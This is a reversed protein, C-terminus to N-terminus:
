RVGRIGPAGDGRAAHGGLHPLGQRHLREGTIEHLYANVDGSDITQRQGDDDVYQFLEAGPLEKCRRVINAMRRDSIDISHDVGSKGRFHFRVTAGEVDVHQNRMTTLGYSENTKAYEENGVRILTTELLRVVTALVKERPLGSRGLDKEVQARIRPLAEAFAIMRAYKTEDRTERWRPHYRYQKRGKADRGTAQLHGNPITCIWVDTWAPPIVLSRIRRLTEADHVLTGDPRRYSFGTGARKRRIGPTTDSVYRLRALRASAVPDTVPAPLPTPRSRKSQAHTTAYIMGRRQALAIGRAAFSGQASKRAIIPESAAHRYTSSPAAHPVNRPPPLRRRPAPENHERRHREEEPEREIRLLVDHRVIELTDKMELPRLEAVDGGDALNGAEQEDEERREEVADRELAHRRAREDEECDAIRKEPQRIAEPRDRRPDDDGAHAVMHDQLRLIREAQIQCRLPLTPRDEALHGRDGLRAREGREHNDEKDEMEVGGNEAWGEHHEAANCGESGHRNDAERMQVVALLPRLRRPSVPDHQLTLVTVVVVETQEIAPPLLDEEGKTEPHEHM